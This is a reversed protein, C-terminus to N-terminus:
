MDCYEVSISPCYHYKGQQITKSATVSEIKVTVFFKKNEPTFIGNTFPEEFGTYPGAKWTTKYELGSTQENIQKVIRLKKNRECNIEFKVIPEDWFTNKTSGQIVEGLAFNGSTNITISNSHHQSSQGSASCIFLCFIFIIKLIIYKSQTKM